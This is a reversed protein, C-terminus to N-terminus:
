QAEEVGLLIRVVVHAEHAAAAMVRSALLPLGDRVDSEMDGVVWCREGIRRTAIANAPSYGALGIAWVLPTAPLRVSATEVVMSKVAADDVAEVLVDVDVFLGALNEATVRDPHLTLEVRPELRRLIEALADAKRHGIQDPFYAQRDLNSSEVSDPDALVFRRVGARVLMVAINSGLGGLGIIGVTGRGLRERVEERTLCPEMPESM